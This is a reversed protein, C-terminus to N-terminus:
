LIHGFCFYSMLEFEKELQALRRRTARGKIIRAPSVSVTEMTLNDCKETSLLGQRVQESVVAFWRNGQGVPLLGYYVPRKRFAEEWNWIAPM